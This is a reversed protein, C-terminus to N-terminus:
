ELPETFEVKLLFDLMLSGMMQQWVDSSVFALFETPSDSFSHRNRYIREGTPSIDYSLFVAEKRPQMVNGISLDVFVFLRELGTNADFRQIEFNGDFRVTYTIGNTATVTIM